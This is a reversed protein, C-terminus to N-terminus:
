AVGSNSSDGPFGLCINESVSRSGLALVIQALNPEGHMLEVVCRTCKWGSHAAGFGLVWEHALHWLDQRKNFLLLQLFDSLLMNGLMLIKRQVAECM